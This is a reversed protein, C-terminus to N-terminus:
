ITPRFLYVSRVKFQLPISYTSRKKTNQPITLEQIYEGLM